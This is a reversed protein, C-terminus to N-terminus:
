GSAFSRAEDHEAEFGCFSSSTAGISSRMNARFVHDNGHQGAYAAFGAGGSRWQAAITRIMGVQRDRLGLTTRSRSASPSMSSSPPFRWSIAESPMTAHHSLLRLEAHDSRHRRAADGIDGRKASRKAM